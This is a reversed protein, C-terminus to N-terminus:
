GRRGMIAVAAPPRVRHVAHELRAVIDNSTRHCSAVVSSSHGCTVPASLVM